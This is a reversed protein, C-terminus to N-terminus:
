YNYKNHKNPPRSYKGNVALDCFILRGDIIINKDLLAYQASQITQFTVFGFGKSKM